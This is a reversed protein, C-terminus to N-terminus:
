EIIYSPDEVNENLYDFVADDSVDSIKLNDLVYGEEYIFSSIDNYEFEMTGSDLYEEMASIELSNFTQQPDPKFLLTSIIGIFVAAVAAVAYLKRRSFISVVKGKGTPEEIKDLIKEELSEFYNQPIKFGSEKKLDYLIGEDDNISAMMEAEFEEFYSEPVKFGSKSNYSKNKEM